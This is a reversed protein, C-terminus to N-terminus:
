DKRDVCFDDRRYQQNRHVTRRARRSVRSVAQEGEDSDHVEEDEVDEPVLEEDLDEFRPNRGTYGRRGARSRSSPKTHKWANDPLDEDDYITYKSVLLSGNRYAQKVFGKPQWMTSLSFHNWTTRYETRGYVAM